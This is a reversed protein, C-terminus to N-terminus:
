VLERPPEAPAGRQRHVRGAARAVGGLLDHVADAVDAMRVPEVTGRESGPVAPPVADRSAEAEALAEERRAREVEAAPDRPDRAVQRAMGGVDDVQV